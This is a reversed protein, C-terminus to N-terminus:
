SKIDSLCFVELKTNKKDFKFLIQCFVPFHYFIHIKLDSINSEAKCKTRDLFTIINKHM